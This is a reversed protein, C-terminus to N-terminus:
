RRRVSRTGIPSRARGATGPSKGAGSGARGRPAPATRPPSQRKQVARVLQMPTMKGKTPVEYERVSQLVPSFHVSRRRASEAGERGAAQDAPTRPTRLGGRGKSPTGGAAGAAPSRAAAAAAEGGEAPAAAGKSGSAGSKPASVAAAASAKAAAAPLNSAAAAASGAVAAAAAAAVVPVKRKKLARAGGDAEPGAGAEAATGERRKGAGGPQRTVGDGSGDGGGDGSRHSGGNAAALPASAPRQGGGAAGDGHAPARPKTAGAGKGNAGAAGEDGGGGAGGVGGRAAAAAVAAPERAGAGKGAAAEAGEAGARAGAGPEAHGGDAHRSRKVLRAADAATLESKAKRAAHGAETLELRMENAHGDRARAKAGKAAAAPEAGELRQALREAKAQRKRKLQAGAQAKKKSGRVLAQLTAQLSALGAGASKAAAAPAGGAARVGFLPVLSHAVSRNHPLAAADSAVALLAESVRAGDFPVAMLPAAKRRRREEEAEDDDDDDEDSSSSGGAPALPDPRPSALAEFVSGCVREVLPKDRAGALLAFFPALLSQTAAASACGARCLEPVYVDSVHLRIGAQSAGIAPSLPGEEFLRSVARVRGEDWETADLLRFTEYTVRRMLTLYKNLRHHDILHWERAMTAWFARVFLESTEFTPPAHVLGALQEALAHQVLPKDSHWMCYFLAKWLKLFDQYSLDARVSLYKSM